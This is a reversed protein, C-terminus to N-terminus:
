RSPTSNKDIAQVPVAQFSRSQIYLKSAAGIQGATLEAPGTPEVLLWRRGAASATEDQGRTPLAIGLLAHDPVFLLVQPIEPKLYRWLSALLAM